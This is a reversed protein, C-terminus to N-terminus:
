KGLDLYWKEEVCVLKTKEDKTDGNGYTMTLSVQAKTGDESIEEGHIVMSKLGGMKDLQPKVKEELMSAFGDKMKTARKSEPNFYFLSAVTNYDESQLAAFYKEVTASPTSQSSSCAVMLVVACALAALLSFLKKM